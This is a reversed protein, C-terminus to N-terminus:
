SQEGKGTEHIHSDSLILSDSDYEENKGWQDLVDKILIEQVWIKAVVTLPLALFLGLFGFFTVFFLQSVLTVAPLLSVQQAMIVPTLFNSEAQQIFFYLILVAVMKWPADLLAIALAPVVSMTPGVNPILNMFGALVGLALAAKVRLISLGIMSMLGVALVGISAGTVWGELSVECQDLIGAVRQRYFSPFLRVFVKQYADPNALFMGTLVLVLLIKLVIELSSSVFAFSNGLARNILPQAEEILSNIDPIFALLQDPIHTRQEDIWSNLREFGQPVRYTLEQFQHVFPPVILWFFGIIGAFLITVSLFVALGRSMGFGQLRRALRNLTTALVVAAFILLLVQRIQWLIYLSLLLTILGIWQGLNM